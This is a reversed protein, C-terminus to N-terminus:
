FDVNCEARVMFVLASIRVPWTYRILAAKQATMAIHDLDLEESFVTSNNTTKEGENDKDALPLDQMEHQMTKKTLVAPFTHEFLRATDCSITWFTSSMAIFTNLNAVVLCRVKIKMKSAEKHRPM